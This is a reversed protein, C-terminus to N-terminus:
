WTYSTQQKKKGGGKNKNWNGGGNNRRNNRGGGGMMNMMMAQMMHMPMMQMGNMNFMRGGKMPGFGRNGNRNFRRPKPGMEGFEEKTVKKGGPLTVDGAGWQKANERKYLTFEVEVGAKLSPCGEEDTRIDERAVYINQDAKFSEGGFETAASLKVFGYGNRAGFSKVTGQFRQARNPFNKKLDAQSISIPNGGVLTVKAAFQQKEGKRSRFKTKTGVYYEVEMDKTLAPWEDTSQIQKWHVYIKKGGDSPEILGFGRRYEYKFVKGKYRVSEDITEEQDDKDTDMGTAAQPASAAQTEKVAALLRKQLTAKVGNTPQGLETLKAKLDSVKFSLIQAETLSM